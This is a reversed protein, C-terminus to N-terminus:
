PSSALVHHLAAIDENTAACAFMGATDCAIRNLASFKVSRIALAKEGVSGLGERATVKMGGVAM